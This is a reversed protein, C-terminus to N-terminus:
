KNKTSNFEASLDLYTWCDDQKLHSFIYNNDIDEFQECYERIGENRKNEKCKSM